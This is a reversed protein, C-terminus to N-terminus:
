KSDATVTFEDNKISDKDSDQYGAKTLRLSHNGTRSQGLSLQGLANTVGRFDGDVFVSVGEVIMKTCADKVTLTVERMQASAEAFEVTTSGSRQDKQATILM